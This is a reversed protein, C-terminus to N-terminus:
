GFMSHSYKLTCVGTPTRKRGPSITSPSYVEGVVTHVPWVIVYGGYPFPVELEKDRLSCCCLSMVVVPCPCKFGGTPWDLDEESVKSVVTKFVHNKRWNKKSLDNRKSMNWWHTWYKFDAVEKAGSPNEFISEAGAPKEFMMKQCYDLSTNEEFFILNQCGKYWFLMRKEVYTEYCKSAM